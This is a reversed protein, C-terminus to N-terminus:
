LYVLLGRKSFTDKRGLEDINQIADDADLVPYDPLARAETTTVLRAMAAYTTMDTQAYNELAEVSRWRVMM